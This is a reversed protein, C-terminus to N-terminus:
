VDSKSYNLIIGPVLLGLISAVGNILLWTNNPNYVCIISCIIVSIGGFSFPKFRILLGTILIMIGLLFLISETPNQNKEISIVILLVWAVNFVGWIIKLARGIHTEYGTKKRTKINYIVTLVMGIVPILVWYLLASYCSQQIFNPFIYHILSMVAILAGWFIFNPATSKLNEKTKNITDNILEIHAQPKMTKLNLIVFMFLNIKYVLFDVVFLNLFTQRFLVKNYIQV